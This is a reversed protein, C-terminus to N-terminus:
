QVVEGEVPMGGAAQQQQLAMQYNDKMRQRITSPVNPMIDAIIDPTMLGAEMLVSLSDTQMLSNWFELSATPSTPAEDVVVDFEMKNVWDSSYEVVEGTQDNPNQTIRVLTGDEMYREIFKPLLGGIGPSKRYRRLSDFLVSLTILGQRQISTVAAGATRKLDDVQGTLYPNVGALQPLFEMCIQMFREISSPYKGNVIQIAKDQLAKHRAEIFANPKGWEIRAQEVNKFIGEETIVAGKPNTAIIYVLQSLMKNVWSQPDFMQRMLGFFQQTSGDKQHNFGTLSKFTFDNIESEAEELVVGGGIFSRYYTYTEFRQGLYSDPNRGEKFRTYESPTLEEEAVTSGDKDYIRVLYKATLQKEQFDWVPVRGKKGDYYVQNQIYLDAVSQNHPESGSPPMNHGEVASKVEELREGGWIREFVDESLWKGRMIWEADSLNAKKAHGDWLMEFVPVKEIKIQGTKGVFPDFSTETWGMGCIVCDRFASSEESEADCTQRIYRSVETLMDNFESDELTRPLYKTEFRNTIESGSVANVISNTQNFTLSPREQSALFARDKEEWQDGGYYDFAKAAEEFFERHAGSGSKHAARFRDLVSM